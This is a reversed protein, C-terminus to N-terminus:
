CRKVRDRAAATLRVSRTEGLAEGERHVEGSCNRFRSGQEGERDGRCFRFTESRRVRFTTSPKSLGCALRAAVALTGADHCDGWRAPAKGGKTM